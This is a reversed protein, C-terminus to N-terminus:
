SVTLRHFYRNENLTIPGNISPFRASKSAINRISKMASLSGHIMLRQLRANFNGKDYPLVQLRLRDPRDEMRGAKDAQCFLGIFTLRDLPDLAALDEDLFFEPKVTRIRSM